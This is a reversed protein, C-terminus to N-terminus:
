PISLKDKEQDLHCPFCYGLSFFCFAYFCDAFDFQGRDSEREAVPTIKISDAKCFSTSVLLNCLGPLGQCFLSLVPLFFLFLFCDERSMYTCKSAGGRWNRMTDSQHQESESVLLGGDYGQCGIQDSM